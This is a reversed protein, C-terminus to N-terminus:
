CMLYILMGTNQGKWWSFYLNDNLCCRIQLNLPGPRFAHDYYQMIKIMITVGVMQGHHLCLLCSLGPYKNDINIAVTMCVLSIIWFRNTLDDLVM